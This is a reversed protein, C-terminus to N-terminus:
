ENNWKERVWKVSDDYHVYLGYDCGNNLYGGPKGEGFVICSKRSSLAQIISEEHESVIDTFGGSHILEYQNNTNLEISWMSSSYVSMIFDACFISINLSREKFM